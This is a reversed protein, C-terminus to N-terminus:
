LPVYEAHSLVAVNRRSPPARPAQAGVPLPSPLSCIRDGRACSTIKYKAKYMNRKITGKMTHYTHAAM